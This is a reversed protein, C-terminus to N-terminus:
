QAQFWNVLTTDPYEPFGAALTQNSGNVMDIEWFLDTNFTHEGGSTDYGVGVMKVEDFDILPPGTEAIFDTSYGKFPGNGGPNQVTVIPISYGRTLDHLYFGGWNGNYNLTGNPNSAWVDTFIVDYVDFLMNVTILSGPFYEIFM